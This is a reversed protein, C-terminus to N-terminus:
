GIRRRAKWYRHTYLSSAGATGLKWLLRFGQRHWRLLTDPKVILLAQKWNQIISTLVVLLFRDLPTFAPKKLQRNLIILQKRLLANEAMLEAKSKSADGVAGGILSTRAPKTLAVFYNQVIQGFHALRHTLTQIIFKM